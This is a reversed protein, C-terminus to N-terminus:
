FRKHTAREAPGRFGGMLRVCHLDAPRTVKINRPDGEVIMVPEGLREVLGADDTSDLDAQAYARRLLPAAFVQPTQVLVLNERPVTAEVRRLRTRSGGGLIADLPDVERDEEAHASARKITDPVEVAPIVAPHKEAAALLREILEPPTIPRAADHVAIHTAEEPVLALAEKVSEWRRREGGRCLRVGLLGLKDGHRLVFEDYGDRPGALILACVPDLSTFLEVTRHLLPRGGLDEDLKSRVGGAATYRSSGGAAAIIIAVKM